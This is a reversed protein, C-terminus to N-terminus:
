HASRSAFLYGGGLLRMALPPWSINIAIVVMVEIPLVSFKEKFRDMAPITM